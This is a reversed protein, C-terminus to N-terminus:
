FKLINESTEPRKKRLVTGWTKQSTVEEIQIPLFEGVWGRDGRFSVRVYEETYGSLVGKEDQPEVLVWVNKGLFAQRYAVSSEQVAEQMIKTRHRVVDSPVRDQYRYALTGKRHSYPFVHVRAFQLQHVLAVSNEFQAETEGPFGVIIDTTVSFSPQVKRLKQILTVYDHVTYNRQMRRLVEDDGSQLSLHLQKCCKEAEFLKQIFLDNIDIPDISSLRVRRLGEIRDMERVVDLLQLPKEFDRGYLGLSVGTLVIERFGQRVLRRVEELIDQPPRSVSKGRVVWVKCFACRYDCGDQVKVFARTHGKFRSISLPVFRPKGQLPPSVYPIETPTSTALIDHIRSKEHQKILHTVGELRLIDKEDKQAYCGTVVIKAHPNERRCARILARAERDAGHTVTCTNIVYIDANEEVEQYAKPAFQERVGQTEYQNVKCGFTKFCIKKM